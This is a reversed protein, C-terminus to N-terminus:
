SPTISILAAARSGPLRAFIATSRWSLEISGDAGADAHAARAHLRHDTFELALLDVDDGPRGIRRREDDVRQLGRFHGLDHEIRFLRPDLDDDGFRLKRQRDAPAALVHAQGRWSVPQDISMRVSASSLSRRCFSNAERVPSKMLASSTSSINACNSTKRIDLVVKTVEAPQLANVIFTAPDPSWPIIDIKEGQLEGVVAQVRAGRM